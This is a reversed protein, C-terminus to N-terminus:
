SANRAERLEPPLWDSTRDINARTLRSHSDPPQAHFRLGADIHKADKLLLEISDYRTNRDNQGMHHTSNLYGSISLCLDAEGYLKLADRILRRRKADLMARDHGHVQRWHDFVRQVADDPALGVPIESVKGELGIGEKGKRDKGKRDPLITRPVNESHYEGPPPYKPDQPKDIRQHHWGTVEFYGKGEATYLRILGNASLESIMGLIDEGTFDDAPFVEAKIQKASDPHRGADDCFNLLGLFLLRANTSCELVQASTWFEPKITRIRAM